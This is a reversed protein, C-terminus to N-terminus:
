IQEALCNHCTVAAALLSTCYIFQPPDENLRKKKMKMSMYKQHFALM